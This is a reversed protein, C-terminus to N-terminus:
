ESDFQSDLPSCHALQVMRQDTHRVLRTDHLEGRSQDFEPGGNQGRPACGAGDAGGSHRDRFDGRMGPRRLNQAPPDFGQMGPNVPAQQAPPPPGLVDPLHLFLSNLGDVHHDDIEVREFRGNGFRVTSELFRNFVDIDPARGHQPRRGLIMLVDHHHDVRVVIATHQLRQPGSRNWQRQTTFQGPFHKFM